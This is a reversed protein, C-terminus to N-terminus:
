KNYAKAILENIYEAIIQSGGLQIPHDLFNTSGDCFSWYDLNGDPRYMFSDGKTSGGLGPIGTMYVAVRYNTKTLYTEGPIGYVNNVVSQWLESIKAIESPNKVSDFRLRAMLKGTVQDWLEIVVVSDANSDYKTEGRIDAFIDNSYLKVVGCEKFNSLSSIYEVREGAFIFAGGPLKALQGLTQEGKQEAYLEDHLSYYLSWAWSHYTWENHAVDVNTFLIMGIYKNDPSYRCMATCLAEIRYLMTEYVDGELDFTDSTEETVVGFSAYYEESTYFSIGRYTHLTGTIDVIRVIDYIEFLKITDNILYLVEDNTMPMQEGEARRANIAAIQEATYLTVVKKGNEESVHTYDAFKAALQEQSIPKSGDSIVIDSPKEEPDAPTEVDEVPPTVPTEVDEAPADAPPAAPENPEVPEDDGKDADPEGSPTEPVQAQQEPAPVDPAITDNDVAVPAVDSAFIYVMGGSLVCLSLMLAIAAKIILSSKKKM